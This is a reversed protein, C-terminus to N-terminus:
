INTFFYAINNLITQGVSSFLLKTIYYHSEYFCGSVLLLSKQLKNYVLKTQRLLVPITASVDYRVNTLKLNSNDPSNHAM